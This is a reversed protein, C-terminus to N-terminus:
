PREAGSVRMFEYSIHVHEQYPVRACLTDYYAQFRPADPREIELTFYRYLWSGFSFDALSLHDGALFSRNKLQDDVFWVLKSVADIQEQLKASDLDAKPTKMLMLFLPAIAPFFTSQCWCMWQDIAARAGIDEPFFPQGYRAGVYRLVAESEWVTVAGDQLAPILQNPNIAIYEPTDLGGFPGGVDKRDVELGLEGILWAVKQVNASSNRGWLTLM